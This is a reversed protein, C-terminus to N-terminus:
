VTVYPHVPPPWHSSKLDVYPNDVPGYHAKTAGTVAAWYREGVSYHWWETPYNVFGADTMATLLAARLARPAGDVAPAGTYCGGASEEPSANVPTGLDLEVGDPTCLTLDVAGGTCHPAVGIPSVYRSALADLTAGDTGPTGVALAARYEDYYRRQLAPPRYCEVVLLRLGDPLTAQAAVLRDAVGARALAFAGSPDQKRADLRLEASDRLDVLQEGNDAVPVAAVAPDSLLLITMGGSAALVTV